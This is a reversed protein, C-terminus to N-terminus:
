IKGSIIGAEGKMFPNFIETTKTLETLDSIPRYNVILVHNKLNIEIVKAYLLVKIYHIGKSLCLNRIYSILIAM